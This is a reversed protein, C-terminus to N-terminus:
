SLGSQIADGALRYRLIFDRNGGAHESPSLAFHRLSANDATTVISHSPSELSQLPIPTSVAGTLEFRYSPPAGAPTYGSAIFKDSPKATAVAENSYRPGVVTPYDLEYVGSTPVLLESYRLSVELRDGPMVNAVKMTFVNPRQQELLSAAKGQK